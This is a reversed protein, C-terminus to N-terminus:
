AARSKPVRLIDEAEAQPPSTEARAVRYTRVAIPLLASALGTVAVRAHVCCVCDECNPACQGDPGDDECQQACPGASATSGGVAQVMFVALLLAVVVRALGRWYSM